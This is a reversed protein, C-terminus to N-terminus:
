RGVGGWADVDERWTEGVLDSRNLVVAAKSEVPGCIAVASCLDKKARAFRNWAIPKAPIQWSAELSMADAASMDSACRSAALARLQNASSRDVPRMRIPVLVALHNVNAAAVTAPQGSLRQRGMPFPSFPAPSRLMAPTAANCISSNTAANRQRLHYRLNHPKCHGRSCCTGLSLRYTKVRRRRRHTNSRSWSSRTTAPSTREVATAKAAPHGAVAAVAVAAVAAVAAAVILLLVPPAIIAPSPAVTLGLVMRELMM